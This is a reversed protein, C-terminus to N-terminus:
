IKCAFSLGHVARIWVGKERDFINIANNEQFVVNAARKYLHSIESIVIIRFTRLIELMPINLIVKFKDAIFQNDSLKARQRLAALKYHIAGVM